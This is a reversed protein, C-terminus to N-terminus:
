LLYLYKILSTENGISMYLLQVFVELENGYGYYYWWVEGCRKIYVSICHPHPYTDMKYGVVERQHGYECGLIVNHQPITVYTYLQGNIYM